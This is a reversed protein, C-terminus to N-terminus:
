GNGFRESTLQQEVRSALRRMRRLAVAQSRYDESAGVTEVCELVQSEWAERDDPAVGM